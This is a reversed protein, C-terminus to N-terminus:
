GQPWTVSQKRPSEASLEAEIQPIVNQLIDPCARWLERILRHAKSLEQIDETTDDDSDGPITAAGGKKGAVVKAPGSADLIVNNFYQSVYSMMKEPCASCVAKAMNYAPPYEKPLLTKQKADVPVAGIGGLAGKKKGSKQNTNATDIGLVRPDVRLFQAVIVDVVEPSLTPAEDIVPVLLRIMDYEVKKALEVGTSTKTTGSVIDFCSSFLSLILSDANDLDTLLVISKVEALSSLVYVHQENYANSPDALAPIISTIIATFIDGKDRHALLRGSALERAVGSLSSIDLEEQEYQRLENALAELRKLLDAVPIARGARWSLPESFKLKQLGDQEPPEPQAPAKKQPKSLAHPPPSSPPQAQAKSASHRTTRAM